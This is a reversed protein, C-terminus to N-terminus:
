CDEIFNDIISCTNVDVKSMSSRFDSEDDCCADTSSVALDPRTMDFTATFVM